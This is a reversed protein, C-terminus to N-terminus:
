RPSNSPSIRLCDGRNLSLRPDPPKRSRKRRETRFAALYLKSVFLFDATALEECWVGAVVVCSAVAVLQGSCSAVQIQSLVEETLSDYM